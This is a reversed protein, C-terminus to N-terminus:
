VSYQRTKIRRDLFGAINLRLRSDVKFELQSPTGEDDVELPEDIEMLDVLNKEKEKEKDKKGNDKETEKEPGKQGKTKLGNEKKNQSKDKSESSKLSNNSKTNRKKKKDITSSEHSEKIATVYENLIKM